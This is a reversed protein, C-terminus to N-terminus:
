ATELVRYAILGFSPASCRRDHIIQDNLTRDVINSWYFFSEEGETFHRTNGPSLEDIGSHVTSSAKATTGTCSMPRLLGHRTHIFMTRRSRPISRRLRIIVFLAAAKVPSKEQGTLRDEHRRLMFPARLTFVSTRVAESQDIVGRTVVFGRDPKGKQPACMMLGRLRASLVTALADARALADRGSGASSGM